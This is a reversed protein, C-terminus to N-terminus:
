LRRITSFSKLVLENYKNVRIYNQNIEFAFFGHCQM